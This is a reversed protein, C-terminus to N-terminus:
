KDPIYSYRRLGRSIEYRSYGSICTHSQFTIGFLFVDKEVVEEEVAEAM